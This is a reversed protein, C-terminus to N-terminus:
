KSFKPDLKISERSLLALCIISVMLISDVLSYILVRAFIATEKNKAREKQFFVINWIIAILLGCLPIYLNYIGEMKDM